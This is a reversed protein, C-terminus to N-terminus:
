GREEDPKASSKKLAKKLAKKLKPPSSKELGGNSNQGPNQGLNQIPNQGLNQGPDQRPHNKGAGDVTFRRPLDRITQEARATVLVNKAVHRTVVSGAGVMAGAGITLPAVLSTNSGIFAGAGIRTRSKRRGDYNCTITGAGINVNKGIDSDGIYSLHSVKTGAGIRANKVEVYNGIKAGDGIRSGPRLRAFPGIRCSKGVRCDDLVSFSEIHSDAGIVVGPGIRVHPGIRVGAGIRSDFSLHVHDAGTIEVGRKLARARLRQQMRSEVHSLDAMHNIGRADGAPCFVPFVAGGKATVLFPLRTLYYEGSRPCPTLEARCARLIDGDLAMTGINYLSDAGNAGGIPMDEHNKPALAARDHDRSPRRRRPRSHRRPDKAEIVDLVRPARNGHDDSLVVRGYDPFDGRVVGIAMGTTMGTEIGTEMRPAMDISPRASRLVLSRLFAPQLLPMDALLILVRGKFRGLGCGPTDRRDLADLAQYCADGTGKPTEQVVVMDQATLAIFDSDAALRPSAVVVIHDPRLRRANALVHGVIALGSVPLMAKLRNPGLRKGHGAALIIVALPEGM